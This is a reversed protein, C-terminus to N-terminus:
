EEQKRISFRNIAIAGEPTKAFIADATLAIHGDEYQVVATTNSTQRVSTVYFTSGLVPKAPSVDNIHTRIYEEFTSNTQLPAVTITVAYDSDAITGTSLPDPAVDTISVQVNDFPYPSAESALTVSKKNDDSQLTLQAAFAGAQICQVDTACRSDSVVADFTVRITGILASDGVHLTARATGVSTPQGAAPVLTSVALTNGTTFTGTVTVVRGLLARAKLQDRMTLPLAYTVGTGVGRPAAVVLLFSEGQEKLAGTYSIQSPCPSFSCNPGSRGVSSGDPCLLAETTCAVPETQTRVHSRLAYVAVAAALALIFLVLYFSIIRKTHNEMM